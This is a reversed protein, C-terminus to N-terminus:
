LDVEQRASRAKLKPPPAASRSRRLRSLEQAMHFGIFSKKSLRYGAYFTNGNPKPAFFSRPDTKETKAPRSIFRSGFFSGKKRATKSEREENDAGLGRPFTENKPERKM